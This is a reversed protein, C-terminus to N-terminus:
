SEMRRPSNRGSRVGPSGSSAQSLSCSYRAAEVATTWLRKGYSGPGNSSVVRTRPPMARPTRRTTPPGSRPWDSRSRGRAISSCTSRWRSGSTPRGSATSWAACCRRRSVRYPVLVVKAADGFPVRSGPSLLVGALARGSVRGGRTFVSCALTTSAVSASVPFTAVGFSSVLVACPGIMSARPRDARRQFTVCGVGGGRSGVFGGGTYGVM